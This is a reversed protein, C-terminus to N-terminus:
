KVRKLMKSIQEGVTSRLAELDLSPKKITSAYKGSIEFLTTGNVSRPTIKPSRGPNLESIAFRLVNYIAIIVVENLEISDLRHFTILGDEERIDLDTLARQVAQQRDEYDAANYAGNLGGSM